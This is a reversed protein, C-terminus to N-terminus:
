IGVLLGNNDNKLHFIAVPFPGENTPMLTINVFTGQFETEQGLPLFLISHEVLVGKNHVGTVGIRNEGLGFHVIKLDMPAMFKSINLPPTPVPIEFAEIKM